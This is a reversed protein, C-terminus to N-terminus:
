DDSKWFSTNKLWDDQDDEDVFVYDHIKDALSGDESVRPDM